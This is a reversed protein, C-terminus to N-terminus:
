ATRRLLRRSVMSLILDAGLDHRKSSLFDATFWRACHPCRVLRLHLHSEFCAADTFMVAPRCALCLARYGPLSCALGLRTVCGGNISPLNEIEWGDILHHLVRPDQM